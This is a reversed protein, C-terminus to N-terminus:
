PQIKVIPLAHLRADIQLDTLKVAGRNVELNIRREADLSYNIMAGATTLGPFDSVILMNKNKIPLIAALRQQPTGEEAQETAVSSILLIHCPTFNKVSDFRKIVIKQQRIEKGDLGDLYRDFPNPGLVGILFTGEANPVTGEPWSM